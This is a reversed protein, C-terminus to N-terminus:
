AVVVVTKVNVFEKLGYHALERGFGSKKIGGFPLRPDSKVMQNVAVFGAEIEKAIRAARDLDRTWLSAGLGFETANAIRIMEEEDKVEIIPAVPGFVEESVVKMGPKVGTVVAPRFYFGKGEPPKPGFAITAGQARADELQDSLDQLFEKKALPGMDTDPDMPDGVKLNNLLELYKDRFQAAVPKLAILRKAAICSQGGNSTRSRLAAEAAQAINADDLVMFPDSGGLELVCKKLRGGAAAAVQAGAQVSGTVSVADAGEGEILKQATGSGILLTKFVNEGFGADWFAKEIEVATIPVNSAHKLLCVNGAALTPVAFRLVQWFPFNWPMVGLVVGLPEFTVFSRLAETRVPEDRLMEEANEAYYDCLIACKEVEAVSQSIPKGMESTIIEAYRRKRERLISALKEIKRIRESLSTKRWQRFANRAKRAAEMSAALSLAEFEGNVATTHPNISVLKM